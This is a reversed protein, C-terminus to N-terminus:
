LGELDTRRIKWGRDKIAPLRGTKISKTLYTPSLGTWRAAEPITLYLSGSTQSPTQSVAQVAAAFIVQLLDAASPTPGQLKLATSESHGNGNTPVTQGPVLFPAPATRQRALVMRDIDDPFYVAVDPTGQQRRFRQEIKRAQTWREIAKTSVGARDAAQQKPLWTTLDIDSM